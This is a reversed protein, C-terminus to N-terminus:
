WRWWDHTPLPTQIPKPSLPADKIQYFKGDFNTRENELLSRMLHCAEEFRRLRGGVTSYEIGYAEHENEQWGAGIGLVFRGGSIHDATAAMKAVVAPHRYTNGLVLPGIRLRPVLACWASLVSWVEHVPGSNDDANPMFHDAFWIGDWGTSEARQALEVLTDWSQQAVPWFSFRM